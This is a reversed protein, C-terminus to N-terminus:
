LVDPPRVVDDSKVNMVATVKPSAAHERDRSGSERVSDLCVARAADIRRRGAADLHEARGTVEDAQDPQGPRDVEGETAWAALDQEDGRVRRDPGSDEIRGGASDLPRVLFGPPPSRWSRA